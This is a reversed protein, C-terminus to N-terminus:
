THCSQSAPASHILGGRRESDDGCARHQSAALRLAVSFPRPVGGSCGTPQRLQLAPRNQDLQDIGYVSM